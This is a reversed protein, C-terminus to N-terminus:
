AAIMEAVVDAVADQEGDRVLELPIEDHLEPCPTKLWDASEEVGLFEVLEGLWVTNM